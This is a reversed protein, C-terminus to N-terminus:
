SLVEADVLPAPEEKRFIECADFLKQHLHAAPAASQIGASKVAIDILNSLAVAEKETLTLTAQPEM